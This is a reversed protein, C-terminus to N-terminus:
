IKSPDPMETNLVNNILDELGEETKKLFKYVETLRRKWDERAPNNPETQSIKVARAYADIMTDIIKILKQEDKKMAEDEILKNGHKAKFAKAENEYLNEYYVAIVYYPYSSRKIITDFQIARYFHSAAEKLNTDILFTAVVYHMFAEAEEKNKFPEFNDPLKEKAFLDLTQKAYSISESAYTKDQKKSYLEYGGYAMNMTVYSNEPEEALIEKGYNYAEAVKLQNLSENFKALRYNKVFARIKQVKEDNEKGFRTLFDKSLQYAKETDQPNKKQTLKAIKKFLEDKSEQAVIASISFLSSSWRIYPSTEQKVSAKAEGQLSSKATQAELLKLNAVTQLKGVFLRRIRACNMEVKYFASVGQSNLMLILITLWIKRIVLNKRRQKIELFLM